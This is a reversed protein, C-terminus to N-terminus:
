RLVEEPPAGDISVIRARNTPLWGVEGQANCVALVSQNGENVNPILDGFILGPRASKFMGYGAGIVAYRHGDRTDEVITAM